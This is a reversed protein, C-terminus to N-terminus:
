FPVTQFRKPGIVTIQHGMSELQRNIQEAMRVTGNVTPHWLDTVILIRLVCERSQLITVGNAQQSRVTTGRWSGGTRRCAENASSLTANGPPKPIARCIPLM